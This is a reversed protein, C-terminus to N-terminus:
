RAIANMLYQNWYPTWCVLAKGKGQYTRLAREGSIFSQFFTTARRVRYELGETRAIVLKGEVALRDDDLIVEEVPGPANLVVLGQGSVKTQYDIPGEGAWFSPWVRERFLGLQVGGESAWFAGNELIWSEGAVEFMHYGGMSPELHVTGTGTYSPRVVSEESIMSKIASGISPLRATIKIDGQLHSLAGAEARVTEDRIKIQIWRMGQLECVEFEAM